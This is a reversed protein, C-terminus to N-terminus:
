LHTTTPWRSTHKHGTRTLLVCAYLCMHMNTHHQNSLTSPILVLLPSRQRRRCASLRDRSIEILAMVIRRTDRGRGITAHRARLYSSQNHWHALTHHLMTHNTHIHKIQDGTCWRLPRCGCCLCWGSVVLSIMLISM